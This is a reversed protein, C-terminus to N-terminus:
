IIIGKKTKIECGPFYFDFGEIDSSRVVYDSNNHLINQYYDIKRDEYMKIQEKSLSALYFPEGYLSANVRDLRIYGDRLLKKAFEEDKVFYGPDPNAVIGTNEELTYYRGENCRVSSFFQRLTVDLLFIEDMIVNNDNIPLIVTGFRHNFQYGFADSASNKTVALGLNEFPMISLAQAIECFGNLSNNEVDIGLKQLSRRVNYVSWELLCKAEERSIGTIIGLKRQGLVETLHTAACKVADLNIVKIDPKQEIKYCENECMLYIQYAFELSEGLDSSLKYYETWLKSVSEFKEDNTLSSQYVGMIEILIENLRDM